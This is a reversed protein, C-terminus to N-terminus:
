VDLIDFPSGGHSFSVHTVSATALYAAETNVLDLVDVILIDGSEAAIHGLTRLYQGATHGAGAGSVLARQSDGDLAGTM